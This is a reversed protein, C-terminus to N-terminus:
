EKPLAQTAEEVNKVDLIEVDFILAANVPIVDSPPKSGYALKSPIHLRIKGGKGIKQLGERFGPIVQDLVFEAQKQPHRDTSDFVTGDILKGTYKVVVISNESPVLAGGQEIIEYYLGSPSKKMNSNKDLEKWHETAVADNKEGEKRVNEEARGRLYEMMKPGIEDINEPFKGEKAFERMGQFLAELESESFKLDKLGGNQFIIMGFAKIYEKENDSAAVALNGFSMAALLGCLIVNKIKM